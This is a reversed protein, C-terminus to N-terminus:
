RGTLFGATTGEKVKTIYGPIFTGAPVDAKTIDNGIIDTLEVDGEVLVLFGRLPPDYETDDDPTPALMERWLGNDGAASLRIQKKTM